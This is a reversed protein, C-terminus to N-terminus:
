RAYLVTEELHSTYHGLYFKYGLNLENIYRPIDDFDSIKHYISIALKPKFKRLTNEAGILAKLEAGEIDMKIFDVKSLKKENVFDDIRLTKINTYKDASESEIIRSAGGNDIFPLNEGSKDWLANTIIEVRDKLHHNLSLNRNIIEKNESLLEFSYVKGDKGVSNAFLLASDGFCAGADIVINGDEVNCEPHYYQKSGLLWLLGQLVSYVKINYGLKGLDFLDLTYNESIYKKDHSISKKLIKETKKCYEKNSKVNVKKHGIAMLCNLNILLKKSNEDELHDYLYEFITLNEIFSDIKESEVSNKFLLRYIGTTKLINLLPERLFNKFQERPMLPGFRLMDHNDYYFNDM